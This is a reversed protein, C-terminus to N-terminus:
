KAELCQKFSFSLRRAPQQYGCIVSGGTMSRFM